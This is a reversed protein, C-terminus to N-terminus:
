NEGIKMLTKVFDFSYNFCSYLISRSFVMYDISVMFFILFLSLSVDTDDPNNKYLGAMEIIKDRSM